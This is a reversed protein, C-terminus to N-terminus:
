FPLSTPPFPHFVFSPPFPGGKLVVFPPLRGQGEGVKPPLGKEVDSKLRRLLFPRLLKHLQTVVETENEEGIQFWEEFKEASSFVEPLLFNLLAWLEKLNNQLPTGTILMRYNTRMLRVVQSLRSNANKIRHAEDIIVYRWHFRRFHGKERIVMEYSTICVDFTGPAMLVDKM